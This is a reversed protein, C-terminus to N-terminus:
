VMSGRLVIGPLYGGRPNLTLVQRLPRERQGKFMRPSSVHVWTHEYIIQRFDFGPLAALHKAVDYPTGFAPCIFDTAGVRETAIDSELPGIVHDSHDAGGIEHNLGHCRVWSNVHVPHGLAERVYDMTERAHTVVHKIYRNAHAQNADIWGRHSTITAENLSFYRSIMTM